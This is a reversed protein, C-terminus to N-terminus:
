KREIWGGSNKLANSLYLHSATATIFYKGMSSKKYGPIGFRKQFHITFFIENSVNLVIGCIIIQVPLMISSVLGLGFLTLFGNCFLYPIIDSTHVGSHAWTRALETITLHFTFFIIPGCLILFVLLVDIINHLIVSKKFSPTQSYKNARYYRLKERSIYNEGNFLLILDDLQFQDIYSTFNTRIFIAVDLKEELKDKQKLISNVIVPKDKNIQLDEKLEKIKAETKKIFKDNIDTIMKFMNSNYLEQEEYTM